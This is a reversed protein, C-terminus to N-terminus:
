NGHRTGQLTNVFQAIEQWSWPVKKIGNLNDPTDLLSAGKMYVGLVPIREQIACDIEWIAGDAQRLNRSILVMMGDCGAIKARCNTKWATDWPKKVSMDVFEYPVKDHKAQSVFLNKLALDEMAFSTFIRAPM